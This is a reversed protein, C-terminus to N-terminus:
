YEHTPGCGDELKAVTKIQVACRYLTMDGYTKLVVHIVVDAKKVYPNYNECHYNQKCTSVPKSIESCAILNQWGCHLVVVVLFTHPSILNLRWLHTGLM